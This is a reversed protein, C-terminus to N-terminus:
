LIYPKHFWGCLSLVGFDEIPDLFSITHELHKWNGDKVGQLLSFIIVSDCLFSNSLNRSISHLWTYIEIAPDRSRWTPIPLYPHHPRYNQYTWKATMFRLQLREHQRKRTHHCTKEPAKGKKPWVVADKNLMFRSRSRSCDVPITRDKWVMPTIDTILLPM